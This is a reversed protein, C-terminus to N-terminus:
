NEQYTQNIPLLSSIINKKKSFNAIVNLDEKIKIEDIKRPSSLKGLRYLATNLVGDKDLYLTNQFEPKFHIRNIPNM